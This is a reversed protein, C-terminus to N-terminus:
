TWHFTKSAHNNSGDIANVIVTWNDSFENFVVRGYTGNNWFLPSRVNYFVHDGAPSIATMNVDTVIGDLDTITTTFMTGEPTVTVHLSTIQPASEDTVNGSNIINISQGEPIANFLVYNREGNTMRSPLLKGDSVVDISTWESPVNVKFTLPVNFTKPDRTGLYPEFLIQDHDIMYNRISIDDKEVQYAIAEGWTTYWTDDRNGVTDFKEIFTELTKNDGFVDRAHGWAKFARYPGIKRMGYVKQSLYRTDYQNVIFSTDCKGRSTI